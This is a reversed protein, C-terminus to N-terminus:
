LIYKQDTYMLLQMAINLPDNPKELLDLSLKRWLIIKMIILISYM